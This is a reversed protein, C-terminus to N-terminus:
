KVVLITHDTESSKSSFTLRIEKNVSKHHITQKHLYSYGRVSDIYIELFPESYGENKLFEEPYNIFNLNQYKGKFLIITDFGFIINKNSFNFPDNTIIFKIKKYKNIKSKYIESEEFTTESSFYHGRNTLKETCSSSLILLISSIVLIKNLKKKEM